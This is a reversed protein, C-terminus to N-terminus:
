HPLHPPGRAGGGGEHWHHCCRHRCSVPALASASTLSQPCPCPCPHTLMGSQLDLTAAATGRREGAEGQGAVLSQALVCLRWWGGLLGGLVVALCGGPLFTTDADDTDLRMSQRAAGVLEEGTDVRAASFDVIALDGQQLGRDAVVRLKAQGKRMNLLKADVAVEDSAADGSSEVTVQLLLHPAACLLPPLWCTLAVPCASPPPIPVCLLPLLLLPLPLLLLLLPLLPLM